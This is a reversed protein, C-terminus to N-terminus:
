KVITNIEKVIGSIKGFDKKNLIDILSTFLTVIPDKKEIKNKAIEFFTKLDQIAENVEDDSLKEVDLSQIKKEMSAM